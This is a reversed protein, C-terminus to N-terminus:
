AGGPTTPDGDVGVEVGVAGVGGEVVGAGVVDEDALDLRPALRHAVGDRDSRDDVEVGLDGGVGVGGGDLEGFLDLQTVLAAYEGVAGSGGAVAVEVVPVGEVLLVRCRAPLGGRGVKGQEAAPVM